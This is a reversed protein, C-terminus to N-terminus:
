GALESLPASLHCYFGEPRYQIDAAAQGGGTLGSAILRTGFSSRTPPTVRPGGSEQWEMVANQDEISWHIAIRGADSSLAGYKVANTVLEHLVLALHLASRQGVRLEPGSASIREPEFEGFALAGLVVDEFRAGNTDGLLLHEHAAGLARIRSLLATRAGEIDRSTRFTQNVLGLVLTVTNKLRHGLEQHLLRDREEREVRSTIDRAAGILWAPRGDHRTMRVGSLMVHRMIGDDIGKVRIPFSVGERNETLLLAAAEKRARRRDAKPIARLVQAFGIPRAGIVGFMGRLNDDVTVDGTAPDFDWVGLEALRNALRRREEQEVLRQFLRRRESVETVLLLLRDDALRRFRAEFWENGGCPGPIELQQMPSDPMLTAAAALIVTADPWLTLLRDSVDNGVFGRFAENANEIILDSAGGTEDTLFRGILLGSDSQEFVTQAPLSDLMNRLRLQILRAFRQLHAIETEPWGAPGERRLILIAHRDFDVSIPFALYSGSSESSLIRRIDTPLHGAPVTVASNTPFMREYVSATIPIYGDPHRLLGRGAFVKAGLPCLALLAAVQSHAADAAMSLVEALEDDVSVSAVPHQYPSLTLPNDIRM